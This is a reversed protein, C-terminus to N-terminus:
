QPCRYGVGRVTQILEARDGLKQRLSRVHVDITREMSNADSGRSADLLDMRSFTRGPQRLLTWLLRFETPTLDLQNGDLAARHNLRDIDLGDREVVDAEMLGLSPRRLLAKIRQILPKLKFPKVVYDDAGMHFGVIEDIEDARATLILIRIHQTTTDARLRRCVELGDILPLMLDLVVLDPLLTRARQLGDRGDLAVEVEYGERTLNYALVDVLSQEDEVILITERPM